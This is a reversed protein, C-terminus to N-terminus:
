VRQVAQLMEANREARERAARENEYLRAHDIALAARDAALQLLDTDHATFERPTLSGIHLVGLVRGEVLLPVGLLSRIGKDRLIPNLVDAHDIDPIVIPRREAAVRGAFGRGLPIRVGQEVEEEIGKAARAVLEQTDEDLLLVAVTDVALTERVRELLQPMM